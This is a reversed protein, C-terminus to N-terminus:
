AAIEANPGMSSRFGATRMSSSPREDIGKIASCGLAFALSKAEGIRKLVAL